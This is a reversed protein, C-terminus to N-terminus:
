TSSERTSSRCCNEVLELDVTLLAGRLVYASHKRVRLSDSGQWNALMEPSPMHANNSADGSATRLHPRPLSNDRSSAFSAARFRPSLVRPRRTSISLSPPYPAAADAESDKLESQREDEDESESDSLADCADIHQDMQFAIPTAARSAHFDELDLELGDAPDLDFDLDDDDSETSPLSPASNSDATFYAQDQDQEEEEVEAEEEIEIEIDNPTIISSSSEGDLSALQEEDMTPPPKRSISRPSSSSRQTPTREVEMADDIYLPLISGLVPTQPTELVDGSLESDLSTDVDVSLVPISATDQYDSELEFDVDLSSEDAESITSLPTGDANTTPPQLSLWNIACNTFTSLTSM